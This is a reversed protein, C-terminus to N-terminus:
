IYQNHVQEDQPNNDPKEDVDEINVSVDMTEDQIEYNDNITKEEDKIEINNTKDVQDPIVHQEVEPINVTSKVNYTDDIYCVNEKEILSKDEIDKESTDQVKDVDIDEKVEIKEELSKTEQQVKHVEDINSQKAEQEEQSISFRDVCEITSAKESSETVPVQSINAEYKNDELVNFHKAEEEQSKVSLPSHIKNQIINSANDEQKEDPKEPSWKSIEEHQVVHEESTSESITTLTEYSKEIYQLKSPTSQKSSNPTTATRSANRTSIKTPTVMSSSRSARSPTRPPQSSRTAEAVTEQSEKFATDSTNETYLAREQGDTVFIYFFNLFNLFQM